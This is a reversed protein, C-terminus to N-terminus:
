AVHFATDDVQGLVLKQVVICCFLMQQSLLFEKERSKTEKKKGEGGRM